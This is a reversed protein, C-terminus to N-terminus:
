FDSRPYQLGPAINTLEAAVALEIHKARTILEKNQEPCHPNEILDMLQAIRALRQEPSARLRIDEDFLFIKEQLLLYFYDRCCLEGPCQDRVYKERITNEDIKMNYATRLHESNGGRAVVELFCEWLLIKRPYYNGSRSYDDLVTDSEAIAFAAEFRRIADEFKNNKMDDEAARIYRLYRAVRADHVLDVQRFPAPIEERILAEGSILIAEHTLTDFVLPGQMEISKFLRDRHMRLEEPCFKTGKPHNDNYALVEAHCDFCLPIGNDEKNSGSNTEPIIHHVEIKFGCYKWCICCRRGSKVLLKTRTKQSFPM